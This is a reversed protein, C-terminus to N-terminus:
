VVPETGFGQARDLVRSAQDAAECASITCTFLELFSSFVPYAEPVKPCLSPRINGGGVMGEPKGPTNETGEPSEM